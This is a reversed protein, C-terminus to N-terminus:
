QSEKKAAVSSRGMSLVYENIATTSESPPTISIPLFSGCTRMIAKYRKADILVVIISPHYKSMRKLVTKSRSDMWGKVEHYEISGGPLTVKFDPKYSVCGRRVGDFWFTEPEHQWGVIEKNIKRWELFRAYNVEWSSRAFFKKEGVIAWQSKWSGRGKKNAAVSFGYRLLNTKMAQMYQKAPVRRGKGLESLKDKTDQTHKKGAMGRPHGYKKISERQKLSRIEHKEKSTLSNFAKVRNERDLKQSHKYRRFRNTIGLESAKLYIADETKGLSKILLEVNIEGRNKIQSYYDTLYTEQSETWFVESLSKCGANTLRNHVAQGSVGYKAGLKHVSKISEYERILNDDSIILKKMEQTVKDVTTTKALNAYEPYLHPNRRKVSETVNQPIKNM